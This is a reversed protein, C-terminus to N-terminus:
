FPAPRALEVRAGTHPHVFAIAEAHLMLREGGGRGYLRDGVIPVGIGKEHAAHVRLQHTRGTHPYLAVRTRAPTRELVQWETLAELGHEPDHIQRPRDDLDVRLALDVQGRDRAVEAAAASVPLLAALAAALKLCTKM